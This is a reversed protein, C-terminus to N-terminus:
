RGLFEGVPALFEIHDCCIKLTAIIPVALFAGPLGWVWVWFALGVFIAVPNLALRRGLALPTLVNSQLLNLVVYVAPAVAAHGLSDFTMMGVLGLVALMALSGVYPVFEAVAALVGWLAPNPLGIAWMALGTAVGQVINVLAITGLYRSISVETEKIITVAKKKDGFQPLVRVLKSLFLDGAALLFYLLLVVSLTGTLVDQTVGLLRASLSPGRVVVETPAPGDNSKAAREVREATRSVAEVPRRLEALKGQLRDLSEPGRALWQQAPLALAYVGFGLTGILSVVVLAAGIPEPVRLRKLGRVVPSLLLNLIVAIAIPLLFGRAFYMTYLLGLVFLGVIGTTRFDPRATPVPNDGSGPASGELTTPAESRKSRGPLDDAGTVQQRRETRNSSRRRIAFALM